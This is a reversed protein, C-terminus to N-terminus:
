GHRESIRGDPVRDAVSVLQHPKNTSTTRSSSPRRTPVVALLARMLSVDVLPAEDVVLLGCHIPRDPDCRRAELM